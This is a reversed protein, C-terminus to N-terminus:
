AGRGVAVRHRDRAGEALRHMARVMVVKLDEVQVRHETGASVRVFPSGRDTRSATPYVRTTNLGFSAGAVVAVEVRSAEELVARIFRRHVDPRDHGPGFGISFFSGRFALGRAVAFSPHHPLGPYCVGEFVESGLREAHEQLHTALLSANRDLRQLRRELVSRCPRPVVHASSDAVNTGLHERYDSLGEADDPLALIVGAATRDLGLQAYKTLSEFVLLRLGTPGPPLLALPQFTCSLGTNDIVLYVRDDRRALRKIVAALDPVAIGKSNCLSDLFVAGPRHEEIARLTGPLDLEDIDVARCRLDSGWILQRCEHYLRRGVMVPGSVKEEMQLYAVITTFASMGCSTMLARVDVGPPADVYERLFALEFEAADHHRDRKYDDVHETVRGTWRGATSRVSHGFSPSQWDTATIAAALL